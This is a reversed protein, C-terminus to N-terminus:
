TLELWPRDPRTGVDLLAAGVELACVDGVDVRCVALRGVDDFLAVCSADPAVVMRGGQMPFDARDFGVRDVDYWVVETTDGFPQVGVARRGARALRTRSSMLLQHPRNEVPRLDGFREFDLLGRRDHLLVVGREHS